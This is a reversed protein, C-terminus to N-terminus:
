SLPNKIDIKLVHKDEEEEKEEEQEEHDDDDDDDSSEDYLIDEEEARNNCDRLRCVDTCKLGKTLCTCFPLKCSREFSCSLFGLLGAPASEGSM